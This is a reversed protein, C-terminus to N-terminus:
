CYAQVRPSAEVSVSNMENERWKIFTARLMCFGWERDTFIIKQVRTTNNKKLLPLKFQNMAAFFCGVSASPDM